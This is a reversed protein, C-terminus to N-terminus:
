QLNQRTNEIMKELKVFLERAADSKDVYPSRESRRVAILQSVVSVAIEEATTAGIEIGMPAHVRKLAQLSVGRELLHEYTM